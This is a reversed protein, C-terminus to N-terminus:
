IVMEPAVIIPNLTLAVALLTIFGLCLGKTDLTSKVPWGRSLEDLQGVPIVNSKCYTQLTGYKVLITFKWFYSDQVPNVKDLVQYLHSHAVSACNLALKPHSSENASNGGLFLHQNVICPSGLPLVVNQLDAWM